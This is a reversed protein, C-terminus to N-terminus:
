VDIRRYRDCSRKMGSNSVRDDLKGFSVTKGRHRLLFNLTGGLRAYRYIAGGNAAGMPRAHLSRNAPDSM